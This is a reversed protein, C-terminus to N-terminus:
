VQGAFSAVGDPTHVTLGFQGPKSVFVKTLTVSTHPVIPSQYMWDGETSEPIPAHDLTGVFGTSEPVWDREGNNTLTVPVQIMSEGTLASVGVTPVGAVITNGNRSIWLQDFALTSGIPTAAPLVAAAPRTQAPASRAVANTAHMAGKSHLAGVAAGSAGEATTGMGAVAAVALWVVYVVTGFAAVLGLAFSV